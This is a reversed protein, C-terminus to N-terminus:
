DDRHVKERREHREQAAVTMTAIPRADLRQLSIPEGTVECYGYEGEEIRRLAADIKAVLKRQRDRTRLELARDTEESARDAIDPINRTGDQLHEITSKSDDLIEAKWALLKRRFYELQRENMFPEDEAPKYDEPLFVEAKMDSGLEKGSIDDTTQENMRGGGDAGM